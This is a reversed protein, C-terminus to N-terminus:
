SELAREYSAVTAEACARWTFRAAQDRGAERLREREAPDALLREIAAAMAGVDEPDFLLAAGGAVEPLSSRDSCAVPLGRAMAELVPLGFGEYRSPFAFVDAANYFVPLDAEPVADLWRVADGVGLEDCLRLHRVRQEAFAPAGVRVLTAGVGGRRLVALARLLAAVNKRPDESGVHLVLPGAAPLGYCARFAPPVPRPAFRDLDVGNHVADIRDGPIGLADIVTQRTYHSVAVLRDARALGRMALADLSRDVRHGYVRLAPDDRLLYPLIDHVTVVVPRPLRQTTLLTALTQSTLHIPVGPWAEVRLPYSQGFTALDHGLRRGLRLLPAPLPDRLAAQRVGIGAAALGRELESVYRGLGTTAPVPKSVLQVRSVPPPAPGVM